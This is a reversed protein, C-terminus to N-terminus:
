FGTEAAVRRGQGGTCHEVLMYGLTAASPHSLCRAGARNLGNTALRDVTRQASPRPPSGIAVLFVVPVRVEWELDDAADRVPGPVPLRIVARSRLLKRLRSSSSSVTSVPRWAPRLAALATLGSM